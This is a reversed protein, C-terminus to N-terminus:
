PELELPTGDRVVRWLEDIERNTVAVCGNTWDVLRHLPGLFGLGNRVGHIMIRGGAERGQGEAFARDAANPYSLHLALHFASDSKRSDIIYRGEPTRGDGEFRKPGEPVRGLAVKYTKLGVGNQFVTLSREGKRIVIRDVTVGAPLAQFQVAELLFPGGLVTAGTVGVALILAVRM